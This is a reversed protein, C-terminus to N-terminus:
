FSILLKTLYHLFNFLIFYLKKELENKLTKKKNNKKNQPSTPVSTDLLVLLVQKQQTSVSQGRQLRRHGSDENNHWRFSSQHWVDLESGDTLPEKQTFVSGAQLAMQSRTHQFSQLSSPLSKIVHKAPDNDWFM